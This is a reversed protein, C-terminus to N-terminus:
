KIGRRLNRVAKDYERKNRAWRKEEEPVMCVIAICVLASAIGVVAVLTIIERFM